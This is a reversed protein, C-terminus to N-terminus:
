MRIQMGPSIPGMGLDVASTGGQPLSGHDAIRGALMQGLVRGDLTIYVPATNAAEVILPNSRTGAGNGSPVLFSQRHITSGIPDNTMPHSMDPGIGHPGLGLHDRWWTGLGAGPMWDPKIIPAGGQTPDLTRGPGGNAIGLKQLLADVETFLKTVGVTAGAVALAPAVISTLGAGVAALGGGSGLTVAAAAGGAVEAGVLVAFSGGIARTAMSLTKLTGAIGVAGLMTDFGIGVGPMQAIASLEKLGATLRHPDGGYGTRQRFQGAEVESHIAEHGAAAPLDRRRGSLRHRAAGSATNTHSNRGHLRQVAPSRNRLAGRGAAGRAVAKPWLRPLLPPGADSIRYFDFKDGLRSVCSHLSVPFLNNGYHLLHPARM